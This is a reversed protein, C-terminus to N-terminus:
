DGLGVDQDALSRIAEDVRGRATSLLWRELTRGRDALRREAGTKDRVIVVGGGVEIQQYEGSPDTSVLRIGRYGLRDPIQADSAETTSRLRRELEVTEASTLDWVPNPRGSFLDLQAHMAKESTM